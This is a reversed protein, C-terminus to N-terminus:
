LQKLVHCEWSIQFNKFLQTQAPISSAVEPYRAWQEAVSSGSEIELVLQPQIMYRPTLRSPESYFSVTSQMGLFFNRTPRYSAYSCDRCTRSHPKAGLQGSHSTVGGTTTVESTKFKSVIILNGPLTPMIQLFPFRFNSEYPPRM